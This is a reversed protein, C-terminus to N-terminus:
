AAKAAPKRGPKKRARFEAGELVDIANIVQDAQKLDEKLAENEAKVAALEAQAAILEDRDALGVQPFKRAIERLAVTSIPTNWFGDILSDPEVFGLEHTPGIQPFFVCHSTFSGAAKGTPKVLEKVFRM